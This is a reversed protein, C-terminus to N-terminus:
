DGADKQFSASFWFFCTLRSITDVTAKNFCLSAPVKSRRPCVSPAVAVAPPRPTSVACVCAPLFFFRKTLSWMQSGLQLAVTWVSASVDSRVGLLASSWPSGPDEEAEGSRREAQQGSRQRPGSVLPCWSFGPFSIQHGLCPMQLTM